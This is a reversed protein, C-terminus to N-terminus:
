FSSSRLQCGRETGAVQAQARYRREAGVGASQVQATRAAVAEAGSSPAPGLFEFTSSGAAPLWARHRRGVAGADVLAVPVVVVGVVGAVGVLLRLVHVVHVHHERDRRLDCLREVARRPLVRGDCLLELSRAAPLRGVHVVSGTTAFHPTPCKVSMCAASGRSM